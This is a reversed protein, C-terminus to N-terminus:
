RRDPPLTGANTAVLPLTRREVRGDPDRAEVTLVLYQGLVPETGVPADLYFVGRWGAAVTVPQQSLVPLPDATTVGPGADLPRLLVEGIANRGTSAIPGMRFEVAVGTRNVLEVQVRTDTRHLDLTAEVGHLQATYRGSGVSSWDTEGQRDYRLWAKPTAFGSCAVLLWLAAAFLWLRTQM